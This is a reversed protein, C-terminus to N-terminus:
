GGVRVSEGGDSSRERRELGADIEVRARDPREGGLCGRRHGLKGLVLDARTPRVDVVVELGDLPHGLRAGRDCGDDGGVDPVDRQRMRRCVPHVDPDPADLPSRAVAGHRRAEFVRTPDPREVVEARAAPDIDREDVHGRRSGFVLDQLREILGDVPSGPRHDDRVDQPCRAGHQRDVTQRRHCMGPIGQEDDVSRLGSTRDGDIETRGSRVDVRDRRLLPEEAGLPEPREPDGGLRALPDIHGVGAVLGPGVVRRLAPDDRM